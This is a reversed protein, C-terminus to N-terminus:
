KKDRTAPICTYTQDTKPANAADCGEKPTAKKVPLVCRSNKVIYGKPCIGVPEEAYAASVCLLLFVSILLKMASRGAPAVMCM